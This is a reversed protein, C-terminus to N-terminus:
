KVSQHASSKTAGIGPASHKLRARTEAFEGLRHGVMENQIEILVFTKGNYIHIKLGVMKPLILMSRCHTKIPKKYGGALAKEIKKLLIKQAETFGRTYSRRERTPVLKLFEQIPMAKLEEITKGRFTFEKKAM